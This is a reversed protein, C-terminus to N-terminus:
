YFKIRLCNNSEKKIHAIHVDAFDSFGRILVNM